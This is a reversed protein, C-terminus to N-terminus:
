GEVTITLGNDTMAYEIEGTVLPEFTAKMFEAQFLSYKRGMNFQVNFTHRNNKNNADKIHRYPLGGIQFWYEYIDVLAEFNYKGRLLLVTDKAVKMQSQQAVAKIKDENYGEVLDAIVSKSLPLLNAKSATSVYDVYYDFIQNALEDLSMQNEEANNKLRHLTEERIRFCISKSSGDNVGDDEDDIRNSL